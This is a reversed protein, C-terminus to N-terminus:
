NHRYETQPQYLLVLMKHNKWVASFKVQDSPNLM